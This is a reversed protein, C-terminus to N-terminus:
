PKFLLVFWRLWGGIVSMIEDVVVVDILDVICVLAFLALFLLLLNKDKEGM